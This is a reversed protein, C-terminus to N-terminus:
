SIFLFFRLLSIAEEDDFTALQAPHVSSNFADM